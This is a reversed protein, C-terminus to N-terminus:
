ASGALERARAIVRDLMEPALRGTFTNQQSPHYTGLLRYDGVWAEAGHGFTPKGAGPAAGAGLEALARLAGDWTYAGLAVVVRLEALLSIERAMFGLCADREDPLPKNAPPACRVVPAIYVGHATLGDDRDTSTPQNVLGARHLAAFLFDGSRDGTFLRGTRNGGHAAPALGVLLIRAAPDGWGPLPRAWYGQGRYRAPPNAAAEERWEVLRPCRRCATVEASLAALSRPAMCSFVLIAGTANMVADDVDTVRYTFGEILSGLLQATEIAVAAAIAVLLFRRWDRLAPWLAPGYIGLPTLALMNGGLQRVTNLSLNQLQCAITAFPVLNDESLGRTRRYYDQGAIPIPFITFGITLTIHCLALLAMLTWDRDARRRWIWLAIPLAPILVVLGPIMVLQGDFVKFV